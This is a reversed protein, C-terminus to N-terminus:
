IVKPVIILNDKKNPVNFLVDKIADEKKAEDNFCNIDEKSMPSYIDKEGDVKIAFFMENFWPLVNKLNQKYREKENEPISLRAIELIREFNEDVNIM